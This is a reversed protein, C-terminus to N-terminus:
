EYVSKINTGERHNEKVLEIISREYADDDDIKKVIDNYNRYYMLM